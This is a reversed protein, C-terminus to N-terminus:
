ANAEREQREREQRARLKREGERNLWLMLGAGAGGGNLDSHIAYRAADCGHDDVPVPNEKASKVKTGPPYRYAYLEEETCTPKHAIELATDTEVAADRLFYVTPMKTDPDPAFANYLTQIGPSVDKTAPVTSIGHEALTARDEADHDAYIVELQRTDPFTNILEAHARVTRRTMYLERYRYYEGEPSIAWWQFVFANTFGFDVSGIRRWSAPPEIALPTGDAAQTPLDWKAAFAARSLCHITPDYVDYVIGEFDVWRGFVYREKYKGTLRNLRALYDDPLFPNDEKTAQAEIVAHQTEDYNIWFRKYAWHGKSAPNTAGFLQHMPCLPDRLRGGLEDWESEDIEIFEDVGCAGLKLSRINYSEGSAKVLGFFLIRSRGQGKPGSRVTAISDSKHWSVIAEKPAVEFFAEMTTTKLSTSTKRCLGVTTGPYLQAILMAKLVVARTKGAGWAGSYIAEPALACLFQTQKPLAQIRGYRKPDPPPKNRRVIYGPNDPKPPQAPKPM